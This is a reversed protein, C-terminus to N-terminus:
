SALAKAVPPLRDVLRGVGQRVPDVCALGHKRELDALYKEADSQSLGSTNVSIGVVRVESNTLGAVRVVLELCEGVTPLGQNPLGRMHSRTPEHCLVLADPQAGHILGM